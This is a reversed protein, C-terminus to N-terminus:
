EEKVLQRMVVVSNRLPLSNRCSPATVTPDNMRRKKGNRGGNAEGAAIRSGMELINGKERPRKSSLTAFKQHKEFTARLHRLRALGPVKTFSEVSKVAPPNEGAITPRNLDPNLKLTLSSGAGEVAGATEVSFSTKVVASVVGGVSLSNFPVLASPSWPRPFSTDVVPGPGRKGRKSREISVEEIENKRKEKWTCSFVIRTGNNGSVKIITPPRALASLVVHSSPINVLLTATKLHSKRLRCTTLYSM